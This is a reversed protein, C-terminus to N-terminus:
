QAGGQGAVPVTFHLAAGRDLGNTAWLRGGHADIVSRCISLGLGLGGEKTTVFPEFIRELRAAEIGVGSDTVSIRTRAEDTDPAAIIDIHRDYRANCRMSECANLILNLLVQQLEVRDGQVASVREDIHTSIRVNRESLTAGAVSLVDRFLDAIAVPEWRIQGRTLLARLRQIIQGAHEAQTSIDRLTERLEAVDVPERASMYEASQANCVIATLPQQLEHALAGSLEGLMAARALHTAHRRPELAETSSRNYQSDEVPSVTAKLPAETAGNQKRPKGAAWHIETGLDTVYLEVQMTDGSQAAAEMARMFRDREAPRIRAFVTSLSAVESAM